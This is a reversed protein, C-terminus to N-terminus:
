DAKRKAVRVEPKFIEPLIGKEIRALYLKLIASNNDLVQSVRVENALFADLRYQASGNEFITKVIRIHASYNFQLPVYSKGSETVILGYEADTLVLNFGTIRDLVVRASYSERKVGTKRDTRTDKTLVVTALPLAKIEEPSAFQPNSIPHDATLVIEGNEDSIPNGLADTEISAKNEETPAQEPSTPTINTEGEAAVEPKAKPM